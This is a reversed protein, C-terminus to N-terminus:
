SILLFETEDNLDRTLKLNPQMPIAKVKSQKLNKYREILKEIYNVQHMLIVDQYREITIGL